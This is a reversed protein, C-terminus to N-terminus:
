ILNMVMGHCEVTHRDRQRRDKSYSPGFSGFGSGWRGSFTFTGRGICMGSKDEGSIALHLDSHVM